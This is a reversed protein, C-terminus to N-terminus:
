ARGNGCPGFSVEDFRKTPVRPIRGVSSDNRRPEDTSVGACREGIFPQLYRWGGRAEPVTGGFVEHLLNM